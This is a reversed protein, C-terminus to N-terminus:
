TGAGSMCTGPASVHSSWATPTIPRRPSASPRRARRSSAWSPWPGPWCRAPTSPPCCRWASASGRSAWSLTPSFRSAQAGTEVGIAVAREGYEVARGFELMVTFFNALFASVLGLRRRDGSAQALVEAQELYEQMRVFDGLPSLAYHLDLRLDIAQGITEPTEPLRALAQLAREFWEAAARHASRAFARAGAQRCYALAKDWVEGRFAHHALRDLQDAPREPDLREVVEVIRADLTKRRERLLSGYAL